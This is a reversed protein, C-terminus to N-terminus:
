ARYVTCFVPNCAGLLGSCWAPNFEVVAWGRGEILGVDVVFAPPLAVTREALLRGCMAVTREALKGRRARLSWGAPRPYRPTGQGRFVSAREGGGAAWNGPVPGAAPPRRRVRHRPAPCGIPRRTAPCGHLPHLYRVLHTWFHWCPSFAIGAEPVEEPPGSLHPCNPARVRAANAVCTIGGVPTTAPVHGSSQTAFHGRQEGGQGGVSLFDGRRM